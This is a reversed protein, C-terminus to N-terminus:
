RSTDKKFDIFNVKGLFFEPPSVPYSASRQQRFLFLSTIQLNIAVLLDCNRLEEVLESPFEAISNLVLTKLRKYRDLNQHKLSTNTRLCGGYPHLSRIIKDKIQFINQWKKLCFQMFLVNFIRKKQVTFMVYRSHTNSLFQPNCFFKM